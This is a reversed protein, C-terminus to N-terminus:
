HNKKWIALPFVHTLPWVQCHVLVSSLNARAEDIFEFAEEFFQRLNQVGNDSALLQKYNIGSDMAYSPPKATVNLVYGVGLRHLSSADSADRMNGLYMHPLVQPSPPPFWNISMKSLTKM